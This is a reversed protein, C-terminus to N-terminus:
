QLPRKVAGVRVPVSSETFDQWDSWFKDSGAHYLGALEDLNTTRAWGAHELCQACGALVEATRRSALLESHNPPPGSTM